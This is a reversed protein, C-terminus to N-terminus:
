HAVDDLARVPAADVHRSREALEEHAGVGTAAAPHRVAVSGHGALEIVRFPFPPAQAIANVQGDATAEPRAREGVHDHQEELAPLRPKVGHGGVLLHTREVVPDVLDDARALPGIGRGREGGVLEGGGCPFPARVSLGHVIQMEPRARGLGLAAAHGGGRGRAVELRAAEDGVHVAGDGHGALVALEDELRRPFSADEAHRYGEGVLM